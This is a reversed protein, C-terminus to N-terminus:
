VNCISRRWCDYRRTLSSVDGLAVGHMNPNWADILASVTPEVRSVDTILGRSIVIPTPGEPTEIRGVLTADRWDNPLLEHM